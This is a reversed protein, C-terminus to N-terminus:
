SPWGLQEFRIFATGWPAHFQEAALSAYMLKKPMAINGFRRDFEKLFKEDTETKARRLDRKFDRFGKESLAEADKLADEAAPRYPKIAEVLERATTAKRIAKVYGEVYESDTTFTIPIEHQAVNM